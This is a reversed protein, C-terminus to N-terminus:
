AELIDALAPSKLRSPSKPAPLERPYEIRFGFHHSGERASSCGAGKGKDHGGVKADGKDTGFFGEALGSVHPTKM